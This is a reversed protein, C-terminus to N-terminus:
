SFDGRIWGVAKSQPFEVRYWLYGQSDERVDAEPPFISLLDVFDSM